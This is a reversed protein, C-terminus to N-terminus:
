KKSLRVLAKKLAEAEEVSRTKRFLEVVESWSEVVAPHEDSYHKRLLTLEDLLVPESKLYSGQSQYFKKLARLSELTALSEKGHKQVKAELKQLLANESQEIDTRSINETKNTSCASFSVFLVIIM